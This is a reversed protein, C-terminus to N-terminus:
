QYSPQFGPQNLLEQDPQQQPQQQRGMMANYAARGANQAIGRPATGASFDSVAGRALNQLAPTGGM